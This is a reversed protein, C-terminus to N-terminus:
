NWEGRETLVDKLRDPRDTILGDVGMDLYRHMESIDNVTWVHVQLGADHAAGVLKDDVVRVGRMHTPLQLAAIDGGGGRGFRSALVWRRALNPGCSVPVGGHTLQRLLDIRTDSFSGVILRDHVGLEDILEALPEALGDRKMDVVVSVENFTTLLWELTPVQSSGDRYPFGDATAHRYGADLSQLEDLTFDEVRGSGNTTRHVTPDHFCVLVGDATLHLDTEFHRYGLDYAGQFSTDTNEPWLVRSGRHAIAVPPSWREPDLLM